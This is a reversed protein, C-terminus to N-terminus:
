NRGWSGNAIGGGMQGDEIEMGGDEEEDVLVMGAAVEEGATEEEMADEVDEAAMAVWKEECQTLLLDTM